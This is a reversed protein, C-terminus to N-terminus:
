RSVGIRVGNPALGTTAAIFGLVHGREPAKRLSGPEVPLEHSLLGSTGDASKALWVKQRQLFLCVLNVQVGALSAFPGPPAVTLLLAASQNTAFPM